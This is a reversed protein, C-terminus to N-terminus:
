DCEALLGEIERMLKDIRATQIKKMIRNRASPPGKYDVREGAEVLAAAVDGTLKEIEAMREQEIRKNEAVLSKKDDMLKAIKEEKAKISNNIGALQKQYDTNLSKLSKDKRALEAAYENGRADIQEQCARREKELQPLQSRLGNIQNEKDQLANKLNEENEKLLEKQRELQRTLEALQNDKHM